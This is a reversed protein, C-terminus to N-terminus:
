IKNNLDNKRSDVQICLSPTSNQGTKPCNKSTFNKPLTKGKFSKLVSYFNEKFNVGKMSAADEEKCAERSVAITRNGVMEFKDTTMIKTRDRCGSIEDSPLKFVEMM